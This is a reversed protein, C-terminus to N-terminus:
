VGLEITGHGAGQAADRIHRIIQTELDMAETSRLWDDSRPKPAAISLDVVVTAPRTSLVIIRDAIRLAESVDHTVFLGLCPFKEWLELVLEQMERRTQPDLASFPEDLCLIQPRLVLRAALSVRQQMGGSLQRPYLTKSDTLGVAELVEDAREEREKQSVGKGWIGAKFPLLVNNRVNLWSKLVPKQFVTLVADHPGTVDVGSIQVTGTSPMKVFRDYMGSVLRLITSKGCGSPGLIAVTERGDASFSIDKLVLNTPSGDEGPFEQSIGDLHVLPARAASTASPSASSATEAADGGNQSSAKDDTM